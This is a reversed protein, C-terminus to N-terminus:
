ETATRQEADWRAAAEAGRALIKATFSDVPAPGTEEEPYLGLLSRDLVPHDRDAVQHRQAYDALTNCLYYETRARQEANGGVAVASFSLGAFVVAADDPEAARLRELRDDAATCDAAFVRAPVNGVQIGYMTRQLRQGPHETLPLRSWDPIEEWPTLPQGDVHGFRPLRDAAPPNSTTEPM